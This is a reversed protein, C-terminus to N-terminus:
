PVSGKPSYNHWQHWAEIKSTAKMYFVTRFIYVCLCLVHTRWVVFINVISNQLQVRAAAELELSEAEWITLELLQGYSTPIQTNAM